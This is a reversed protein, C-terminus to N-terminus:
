ARLSREADQLAANDTFSVQSPASAPAPAPTPEVHVEGPGAPEKEPALARLEEISSVVAPAIAISRAVSQQFAQTKAAQRAGFYFTVIAGMLWWMPEPILALGVMREAFWLPAVMASVFLGITGLAMAPRPLRNLGDVLGDFWGRPARAFELGLQDRASKVLDAGRASDAEANVRFVEAVEKVVGGGGAGILGKLLDMLGM